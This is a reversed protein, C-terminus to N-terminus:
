KAYGKKMALGRVDVNQGDIRVRKVIRIGLSFPMGDCWASLRFYNMKKLEHGHTGRSIDGDFLEIMIYNSPHRTLHIILKVANGTYTFNQNFYNMQPHPFNPHELKMLGKEEWKKNEFKGVAVTIDPYNASHRPDATFPFDKTESFKLGFRWFETKAGPTILIEIIGENVEFIDPLIHDNLEPHGSPPTKNNLIFEWENKAERVKSKLADPITAWANAFEFPMSELEEEDISFTYRFYTSDYTSRRLYDLFKSKRYEPYSASTVFRELESTSEFLGSITYPAFTFELDFNPQIAARIVLDLYSIPFKDILQRFSKIASANLIVRKEEDISDVQNFFVSITENTIETSNEACLTFLKFNDTKLQDVNAFLLSFTAEYFYSRLITAIFNTRAVIQIPTLKEGKLDRSFMSVKDDIKLISFANFFPLMAIRGHSWDVLFFLFKFIAQPQEQFIEIFRKSDVFLAEFILSEKKVDHPEKFFENEFYTEDQIAKFWNTIRVTSDPISHYFYNMFFDPEQIAYPNGLTKEPFLLHLLRIILDRDDQALFTKTFEDEENSDLYSEIDIEPKEKDKKAFMMIEPFGELYFFRERRKWLLEPIFPYKVKLVQLIFFDHFHLTRGYLLYDLTLSSSFKKIERLQLFTHEGIENLILESTERRISYPTISYPSFFNHHLYDSLIKPPFPSLPIELDFFKDLLINLNRKSFHQLAHLLYIKDYCSIYVTNPFDGTNRILKLVDFIEEKTLRDLDDIIIVVKKGLGKDGEAGSCIGRM